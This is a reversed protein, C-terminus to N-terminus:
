TIANFKNNISLSTWSNSTRNCSICETWEQVLFRKSSFQLHWQFPLQYYLWTNMMATELVCCQDLDLVVEIENVNECHAEWSHMMTSNKCKWKQRENMAKYSSENVFNKTCKKQSGLKSILNWLCKKRCSNTSQKNWIYRLSHPLLIRLSACLLSYHVVSHWQALRQSSFGWLHSLGLYTRAPIRVNIAPLYNAKSPIDLSAPNTPRPM